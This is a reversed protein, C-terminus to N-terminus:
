NMKDIQGLKNEFYYNDQSISNIFNLHSNWDFKLFIFNFGERYTKLKKLYYFVTNKGYFFVNKHCYMNLNFQIGAM